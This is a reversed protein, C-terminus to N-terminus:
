KYQDAHGGALTIMKVAQLSFKDAYITLQKTMVGRALVKLRGANKNVLRKAKLAELTVTEGDEFNNCITDLNIEVLKGQGKEFSAREVVEIKAAAVEDSLIADAQVADVHLIETIPEEVPAEVAVPEEVNVEEVVPEETKAEEVVAEETSKVTDLMEGVNVKVLSEDGDLKVGAPLIVKVLDRAALAETTEYPMRYDVNPTETKKMGLKNMMEEILELAYKLGRDSKVKLLMPVKDLKPKDSVDVFHYKNANYENPDLGLYVEFAKGKVNLKACQIRGNNFSEFNWSTKAKVGKYSLLANKVVTYYGQISEDAQILRSMFSTRYRVHVVEGNIIAEGNDNGVLTIVSEPAAPAAEEVVPEAVPEAAPEEAAAEEVAPEESIASEEASAKVSDLMEGVNVKVLSEDGDLKVGAPLIVKVLDRAALAETTEYPMRYDVNPTETKKMGLKNMMEEILELAYKLGRDSKVKLLMPVKDLKPKDSVDVFHYKDVSYEATDLALYVELSKGKVNLKACQIRGNNFSEFNWSTRAKVGKYSLLENKVATYYSQISEDAQILRSMFSTRYRVHVVEGNIIAEGNDSGILTIIPAPAAPASEEVVPEEAVPEPAATEEVAPEEKAPEEVVPDEAVPEEAVPEETAPEEATAEPTPEPVPEAAEEAEPTPDTDKPNRRATIFIVAVIVLLIIIALLIWIWADNKDDTPEETAPVVEVISYVSFHTTNFVMYEGDVTANMDEVDGNDAIHVVKLPNASSRLNVPILLRVTFTNGTISQQNGDEAFHIDYAGGVLGEYGEGFFTGFDFSAYSTTIDKFNLVHSESIGQESDVRIILKNESDVIEYQNKFGLITLTASMAPVPNYNDGVAFTATVTYAGPLIFSNDSYEVTIGEPLNGSISLGHPQGDYKVTQNNFTVGSMDLNAKEIKWEFDLPLSGQLKFNDYDALDVAAVYTGANTAKFVKKYAVGFASIENGNADVLYVRKEAGDYTFPESYWSYGTFDVTYKGIEVTLELADEDAVDNYNANGLIKYYVTYTGSNTAVPIQASYESDTSLKYVITGNGEPLEGAVVLQQAAGNYILGTVAVPSKSYTPTAKAITVEVSGYIDAYNTDASSMYLVTYTGAGIATPLETSYEDSTGDIKYMMTGNSAAGATILTQATGNYVLNAVAAPLTTFSQSAKNIIAAVTSASVSYYNDNGVVKYYVTYEGAATAKPIEVSYTEGDLSYMVTGGTVTAATILEQAQTNYTINKAMPPVTFEPTAKDIIVTVTGEATDFYNDGGDVMYYVTYTGANTATPINESYNEGDLSYVMAGGVTAGATVLAQAEGSYVLGQVAEPVVVGSPTAHTITVRSIPTRVKVQNNNVDTLSIECYYSGSDGVNILTLTKGTEGEIPVHIENTAARLMFTSAYVIKYWQYSVTVDDPIEDEITATLVVAEADYVKEAGDSISVEPPVIAPAEYQATLVIDKNPMTSYVVGDDGLWGSIKRGDHETIGAFYAVDAGAPLFGVSHTKTGVVYTVKNIAEFEIEADIGATVSSVNIFSAVLAGYKESIKNLVTEINVTKSGAFSFKGNGDYLNIVTKDKISAPVRNNYVRKALKVLKNYQEEYEMIKNKIEEETLGELREFNKLYDSTLIKDFDVYDFLTLLEELTVDKLLAYVDDPSEDFAAFIKKKLTEPVKKSNAARLVLESFKAPVRVKLVVTNNKGLSVDVNESILAALKRVKDYGGGLRATLTFDTSTNLTTKVSFSYSLQMEDDDMNAIEGPTPITRLLEKIADIDVTGNEYLVIDNISVSKIYKILAAYDLEVEPSELLKERLAGYKELFTSIIPDRLKAEAELKTMGVLAKFVSSIFEDTIEISSAKNIVATKITSYKEPDNKAFDKIMAYFEALIATDDAWLESIVGKITDLNNELAADSMTGIFTEFTDAYAEDTVFHKVVNQRNEAANEGTLWRSDIENKVLNKFTDSKEIQLIVNEREKESLEENWIKNREVATLARIKTEIESKVKNVDDETLEATINESSTKCYTEYAVDYAQKYIDSYKINKNQGDIEIDYGAESYIADIIDSKKFNKTEGNIEIDYGDGNKIKDIIGAKTIKEPTGNITVTFGDGNYIKDIIGAKTVKETNGDITVTFGDGNHIKDIIGAKTVKETNGDITVTFGDGNYIKDIIGAKTVKEPNGDITVTYGDGNIIADIIKDYQVNQMDGDIEVDYGNPSYIADIILQRQAEAAEEAEPRHAEAEDVIAKYATEDNRVAACADALLAEYNPNSEDIGQAALMGKAANNVGENVADAMAKEVTSAIEDDVIEEIRDAVAKEIAEVVAKDIAKDVAAEIAKDVAKDIAEDITDNILKDTEQEVLPVLIEKLLADEIQWWVSGETFDTEDGFVDIVGLRGDRKQWFLDYVLDKLSSYMLNEINSDIPKRNLFADKYENIKENKLTDAIEKVHSFILNDEPTTNTFYATSFEKIYEVIKGDILTNISAPNYDLNGNGYNQVWTKVKVRIQSDTYSGVVSDVPDDSDEDVKFGNNIYENVELEIYDAVTSDILSKITGDLKPKYGDVGENIIDSLYDEAYQPLLEEIALDVYENIKVNFVEIITDKLADTAEPLQNVDVGGAVALEILECIHAIFDEVTTNTTDTPDDATNDALVDKMFQLYEVSSSGKYKEEIFANLASTFLGEFDVSSSENEALPAVSYTSPENNGGNLIDSKLDEIVIAKIADILISVVERLQAESVDLLSKVDPNLTVTIGKEDYKIECWGTDLSGSSPTEEKENSGTPDSAALVTTSMVGFLMTFVLLLTVVIKLKKNM